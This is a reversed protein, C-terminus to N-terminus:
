GIVHPHNVPRAMGLKIETIVPREAILGGNHGIRVIERM